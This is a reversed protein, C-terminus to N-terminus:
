KGRPLLEELGNCKAVYEEYRDGSPKRKGYWVFDFYVSIEHFEGKLGSARVETRFDENTKHPKIRIIKRGHLAKLLIVYRYRVAQRYDKIALSEELLRALEEKSKSADMFPNFVEVKELKKNERYDKIILFIVLGVLLVIFVYGLIEAFRSAAEVDTKEPMRIDQNNEDPREESFDYDNAVEKWVTTDIKVQAAAGFGNALLLLFLLGFIGYRIHPKNGNM